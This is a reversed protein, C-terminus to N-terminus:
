RDEVVWGDTPTQITATDDYEGWDCSNLNNQVIQDIDNDSWWYDIGCGDHNKPVNEFFFITGCSNSVWIKKFIERLVCAEDDTSEDSSYDVLGNPYKSM